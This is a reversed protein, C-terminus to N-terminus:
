TDSYYDFLLFFSSGDHDMMAEGPWGGLLKSLALSLRCARSAASSWGYPPIGTDHWAQFRPVYSTLESHGSM